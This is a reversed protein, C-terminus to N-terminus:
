FLRKESALSLVASAIDETFGEHKRWNRKSLKSCTSTTHSREHVNPTNHYHYLQSCSLSTTAYRCYAASRSFRTKPENLLNSIFYRYIEESLRSQLAPVHNKDSTWQSTTELGQQKPTECDVASRGIGQIM